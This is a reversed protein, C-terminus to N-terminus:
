QREVDALDESDSGFNVLVVGFETSTAGFPGLDSWNAGSEGFKAALEILNPHIEASVLTCCITSCGSGSRDM